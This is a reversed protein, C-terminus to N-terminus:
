KKFVELSPSEVMDRSLNSWHNIATLTFFFTNRIDLHFREWQLKYGNSRRKEVHSRAFLSGRDEKFGGKLCQFVAILDLRLKKNELTFLGLEKLREEYPLNKLRKVM